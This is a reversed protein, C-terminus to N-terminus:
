AAKLLRAKLLDLKARGYYLLVGAVQRRSREAGYMGDL